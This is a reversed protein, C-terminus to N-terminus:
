LLDLLDYFLIEHLVKVFFVDVVYLLEDSFCLSEIPFYCGFFHFCCNPLHCVVSYSTFVVDIYFQEFICEFFDIFLNGTYQIPDIFSIVSSNLLVPIRSGSGFCLFVCPGSSFRLGMVKCTMQFVSNFIKM